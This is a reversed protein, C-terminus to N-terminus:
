QNRAETIESASKATLNDISDDDKPFIIYGSVM